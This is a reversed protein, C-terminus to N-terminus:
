YGTPTSTPTPTPTPAPAPPAAAPAVAKQVPPKKPKPKAPELAKEVRKLLSLADRRAQGALKRFRKEGEAELKGLRHSVERLLRLFDKSAPSGEIQKQMRTLGAQVKRTFEALTPPLDAKLKSVASAAKKAPTKRGRKAKAM